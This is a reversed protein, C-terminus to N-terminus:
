EGELASRELRRAFAVARCCDELQERVGPTDFLEPHVEIMMEMLTYACDDSADLRTAQVWAEFAGLYDDQGELSVGLNKFADPRGADVKIAVRCLREAEAHRGFLNLCYALNNHLFYAAFQLCPELAMARRYRGIAEEFEGTREYSGGLCVYCLARLELDAASEALPELWARVRGELGARQYLELLEHLADLTGLQRLRALARGEAEDFSPERDGTGPGGTFTITDHEEDDRDREDERPAFRM